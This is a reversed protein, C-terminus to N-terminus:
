RVRKADFFWGKWHVVIRQSTKIFAATCGLDVVTVPNPLDLNESNAHGWERLYWKPEVVKSELPPPLCDDNGLKVIKKSITFIQGVFQKAERDDLATIDSSDLAKMLRWKGIVGLEQYEEAHAQGMWFGAIGLTAVIALLTARVDRKLPLFIM